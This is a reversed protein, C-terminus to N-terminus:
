FYSQPYIGKISHLVIYVSPPYVGSLIPVDRLTVTLHEVRPIYRKYSKFFAEGEKIKVGPSDDQTRAGITHAANEHIPRLISITNPSQKKRKNKTKLFLKKNKLSFFKNPVM